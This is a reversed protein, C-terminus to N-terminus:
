GIEIKAGEFNYAVSSVQNRRTWSEGSKKNQKDDPLKDQALQVKTDPMTAEEAEM